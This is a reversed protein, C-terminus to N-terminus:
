HQGDAGDFLWEVSALNVGEILFLWWWGGGWGDCSKIRLWEKVSLGAASMWSGAIEAM